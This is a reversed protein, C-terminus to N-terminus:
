NSISIFEDLINKIEIFTLAKFIRNKYVASNKMGKFYWALHKRAEQVAIKEEKQMCMSRVHEIAIKLKYEISFDAEPNKIQSFLFPNGLVGRGAMISDVGTKEFMEAANEAIFIDGNGIVPIKVTQKIQSFIEWDAKGSYMQEGTRAHVCIAAVGSSEAMKAFELFNINHNNYGKRFKVTVPLKTASVATKLIKEALNLDKMLSCGDGNNVIKPMPCGMNIDIFAPLYQEAVKIAYDFLHPVSGFLQIGTALESPDIYLLAATKKDKYYIGKISVMESYAGDAGFSYCIRRFTVDTIGAMPALFVKGSFSLKSDASVLGVPVDGSYNINDVFM